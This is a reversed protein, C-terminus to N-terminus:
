FESLVSIILSVSVALLGLACFVVGAIATRRRSSNWSMAGFVLGLISFPFGCLPMYWAFLSIIGIVLSAIALDSNDRSPTNSSTKDSASHRRNLKIIGITGLIIATDPSEPIKARIYSVAEKIATLM